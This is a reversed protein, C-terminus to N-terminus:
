EDLRGMIRKLQTIDKLTYERWKNLTNRKPRPIYIRQNLVKDFFFQIAFIEHAVSSPNQKKIQIQIYDKVEQQSPDRDQLYDAFKSITLKYSKLTKRSFNRIEIEQELRRLLDEKKM